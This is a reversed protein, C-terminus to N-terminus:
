IVFETASIEALGGAWCETWFTIPMGTATKATHVSHSSHAAEQIKCRGTCAKAGSVCTAIGSSGKKKFTMGCASCMQRGKTFVATHPTLKGSAQAYTEKFAFMRKWLGELSRCCEVITKKKVRINSIVKFQEKEKRQLKPRVLKAVEDAANNGKWHEEWGM